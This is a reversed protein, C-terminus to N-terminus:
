IHQGNLHRHNEKTFIEPLKKVSTKETCYEIFILTNREGNQFILIQHTGVDRM